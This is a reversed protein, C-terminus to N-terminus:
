GGQALRERAVRAEESRPFRMLLERLAAEGEADRGLDLLMMGEKLLSSKVKDGEPYLDRLARFKALADDWRQQAGYCEGMWYLANDALASSPFREAFAEFGALALGYEGRAFDIYAGDYLEREEPELDAGGPLPGAGMTEEIAALREEIERVVEELMGVRTEVDGLRSDSVAKAERDRRGFEEKTRDLADMEGALQAAREEVAATREELQTLRGGACGATLILGGLCLVAAHTKAEM